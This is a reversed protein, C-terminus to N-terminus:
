RRPPCSVYQPVIVLLGVTALVLDPNPPPVHTLPVHYPMRLLAALEDSVESSYVGM